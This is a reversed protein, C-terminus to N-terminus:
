NTVIQRQVLDESMNWTRDRLRPLSTVPLKINRTSLPIFARSLTTRLVRLQIFIFVFIFVVHVLFAHTRRIIRLNRARTSNHPSGDVVGVNVRFQSISTVDDTQPTSTGPRSSCANCSARVCYGRGRLGRSVLLALQCRDRVRPHAPNRCLVGARLSLRCCSETLWRKTLRAKHLWIGLTAWPKSRGRRECRRRRRSKCLACGRARTRRGLARGCSIVPVRMGNLRRCPRTDLVHSVVTAQWTGPSRMGVGLILPIGALSGWIRRRRTRRVGPIGVWPCSYPSFSTSRQKSSTPEKGKEGHATTTTASSPSGPILRIVDVKRM